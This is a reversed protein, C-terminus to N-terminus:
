GTKLALTVTAALLVFVMVTTAVFFWDRMRVYAVLSVAVRVIPTAMLVILGITLLMTSATSPGRAMWAVLGAALCIASAIVGAHLLRGLTMELRQLADESSRM